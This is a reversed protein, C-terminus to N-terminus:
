QLQALALWLIVCLVAWVGAEVLIPRTSAACESALFDEQEMARLREFLDRELPPADDGVGYQAAGVEQIPLPLSDAAAMPHTLVANPM